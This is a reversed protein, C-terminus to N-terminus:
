FGIRESVLDIFSEKLEKETIKTLLFERLEAARMDEPLPISVM